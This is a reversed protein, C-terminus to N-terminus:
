RLDSTRVVPALEALAQHWVARAQNHQGLAAYSHGLKDLTGAGQYTSGLDRLLTLAQQYHHVAETHRGTHHALFGLSDLTHAEGDRDDHRRCVREFTALSKRQADTLSSPTEILRAQASHRDHQM